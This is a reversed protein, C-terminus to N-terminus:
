QKKLAKGVDLRVELAGIWANVGVDNGNNYYSLRLRRTKPDAVLFRELLKVQFELVGGPAITAFHDAAPKEAPSCTGYSSCGGEYPMEVGLPCKAVVVFENTINRLRVTAVVTQEADVPDDVSALKQPSKVVPKKEAKFDKCSPTGVLEAVLPFEVDAILKNLLEKRKLKDQIQQAQQWASMSRRVDFPFWHGTITRLAQRAKLAPIGVDDGYQYVFSSNQLCAILLPVTREDRWSSFQEILKCALLGDNVGLMATQIDALSAADRYRALVGIAVGRVM